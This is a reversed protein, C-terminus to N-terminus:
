SIPYEHTRLIEPLIDPAEMGKSGMWRKYWYGRRLLLDQM